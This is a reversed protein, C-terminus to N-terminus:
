KIIPLIWNLSDPFKYGYKEFDKPYILLESNTSDYCSYIVPFNHGKLQKLCLPDSGELVADGVSYKYILGEGSVLTIRGITIKNCIKRQEGNTM